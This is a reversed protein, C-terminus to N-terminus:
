KTEEKYEIHITYYGYVVAETTEPNIEKADFRKNFLTTTNNQIQLPFDIYLVPASNESSFLQRGQAALDQIKHYNAIQSADHKNSMQAQVAKMQAMLKEANAKAIDAQQRAKGSQALEKMKNIDQFFHDLGNIGAPVPKPAGPYIWTGAMPNPDAIFGTLLITDNGPHCYDMKLGQLSCWYKKTGSYKPAVRAIMENTLLDMNIKQSSKKVPLGLKNPNDEVVVWRYCSDAGYNFEPAIKTKGKLHTLMYGGEKGVKIEMEINLYFSNLLQYLQTIDADKEPAGLLEYERLLSLIFPINALQSWDHEKVLKNFYYEYEQLVLQQIEGFDEGTSFGMLENNKLAMLYVRVVPIAAKLNERNDKVLKEARWLERQVLFKVADNLRYSDIYACASSKSADTKDDHFLQDIKEEDAQNDWVVNLPTNDIDNSHGLLALRHIIQLGDKILDSEPKFFKEVYDDAEKDKEKVLNTDCAECTYDFVPPPLNNYATAIDHRHAHYFDIVAQYKPQINKCWESLNNVVNQINGNQEEKQNLPNDKKDIKLNEWQLKITDLQSLTVENFHHAWEQVDNPPSILDNINKDLDKEGDKIKKNWEDIEKSIININGESSVTIINGSPIKIVGGTLSDISADTIFSNKKDNSWHGTFWLFHQADRSAQQAVAKNNLFLFLVLLLFFIKKM